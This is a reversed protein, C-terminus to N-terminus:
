AQSPLETMSLSNSHNMMITERRARIIRRMMMVMSRDKEMVIIIMMMMIKQTVPGKVRILIREEVEEKNSSDGRLRELKKDEMKIKIIRDWKRLFGRKRRLRGLGRRRILRRGLVCWRSLALHSSINV